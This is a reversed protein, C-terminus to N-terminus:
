KKIAKIIGINEGEKNQCKILYVGRSLSSMDITKHNVKPTAVKAGLINYIIVSNIKESSFTLVDLIPNPFANFNELTVQNVALSSDNYMASAEEDTIVRKFVFIDDLITRVDKTAGNAFAPPLSGDTQNITGGKYGLYLTRNEWGTVSKANNSSEGILVGDTYFKFLGTTHDFVLIFHKLGATLTPFGNTALFGQINFGNMAGNAYQQSLQYRQWPVADGNTNTFGDVYGAITIFGTWQATNGSPDYYGGITFSDTGLATESFSLYGHYDMSLVKNGNDDIITNDLQVINELVFPSVPNQVKDIVKAIPETPNISVVGNPLNALSNSDEFNLVFDQSFGLFSILLAILLAYNKKM